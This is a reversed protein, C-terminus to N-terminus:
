INEEFENRLGLVHGSSLFMLDVDDNENIRDYIQFPVALTNHGSWEDNAIPAGSKSLTYPSKNSFVVEYSFKMRFPIPPKLIVRSRSIIREAAQIRVYSIVSNVLFYFGILLLFVSGVRGIKSSPLIFIGSLIAMISLSASLIYFLRWIKQAEDSLASLDKWNIINWNVSKETSAKIDAPTVPHKGTRQILIQKVVEFALDSWEERDYHELILKLEETTKLQMNNYIQNRLKYSGDM